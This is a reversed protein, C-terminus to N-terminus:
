DLNCACYFTRHANSYIIQDRLVCKIRYPFGLWRTYYTFCLSAVSLMKPCLLQYKQQVVCMKEKVQSDRKLTSLATGRM